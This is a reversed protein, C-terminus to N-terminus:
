FNAVIEQVGEGHTLNELTPYSAGEQLNNVTDFNLNDEAQLADIESTKNPLYAKCINVFDDNPGHPFMYGTQSFAYYPELIRKEDDAPCRKKRYIVVGTEPSSELKRWAELATQYAAMPPITTDVVVIGGAALSDLLSHYRGVPDYVTLVQRHERAM